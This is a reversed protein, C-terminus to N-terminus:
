GGIKIINGDSMNDDYGGDSTEDYTKKEEL